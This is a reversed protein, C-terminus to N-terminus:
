ESIRIIIDDFKEIGEVLEMGLGAGEPVTIQGNTVVAMATVYDKYWGRYFARVSEQILANHAHLSLHTSATLVVPGTCDHPSIPLHYADAMAAINRGETVGGCWSLDVMIVGASDSSLLDAYAWKGGMTESACVPTKCNAAYRPLSTLNDMRIPDEHWFTNFPELARAIKIAMPLNWLSHFEVMIDMKNGVAARIKRFPELAEDLDADSIYTGNSAEAYKDFPWIKMGTIGEALLSEALVDAKTMFWNLDDFGEESKAGVGWNSSSQTEANRIYNAGACTNYTRISDRCKGGLLQYLPQNVVKGYLDWLAIDVASNGRMETGTGVFGLYGRLDRSIKEIALPDQGILKLKAFEHIYAEVAAAGMFTEGLGVFGEDTHIRVWLINEHETSRLTEVQTIKM